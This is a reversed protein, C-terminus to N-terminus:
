PRARGVEDKGSIQEIGGGTQGEVFEPDDVRRRIPPADGDSKPRDEDTPETEPLTELPPNSKGPPPVQRGRRSPFQPDETASGKPPPATLRSKKPTLKPLVSPSKKEASPVEATEVEPYQDLMGTWYKPGLVKLRALALKTYESDPYEKVLTECYITEAAPKMRGKYYQAREWYREAGRERIKVLEAKLGEKDPVNPFMNLTSHILDDADILDRNDYRPGQYNIQKVYSGVVFATQSHESKPYERRLIDLYHDADRYSHKRIYYIATLMVADDALPGMPDHLWVSKLAKLANGPTDFLPRSKDYFNPALPIATPLEKRKVAEPDTVDTASVQLLEDTKATGDGNLWIAGISFLRRTSKELYRTSPYKKILGDYADQAWAYRKDSFYCEGLMFMADEEVPYDYFKKVVQKFDKAAGEYDKKEYKVLAADYEPLGLEPDIIERPPKKAFPNKFITNPPEPDPRNAATSMTPDSKSKNSASNLSACGSAVILVCLCGLSWATLCPPSQRCYQVSSADM